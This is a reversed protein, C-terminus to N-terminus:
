ICGALPEVVARNGPALARVRCSAAAAFSAGESSAGESSAGKSSAVTTSSPYAM